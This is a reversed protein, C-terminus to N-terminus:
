FTLLALQDIVKKVREKHIKNNVGSEYCVMVSYPTGNKYYLIVM